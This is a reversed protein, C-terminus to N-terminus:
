IKLRGLIGSLACRLKQEGFDAPRLQQLSVRFNFLEPIMRYPCLEVRPFLAMIAEEYIRHGIELKWYLNNEVEFGLPSELAEFFIKHIEFFQGYPLCNPHNNNTEKLTKINLPNSNWGIPEAFYYLQGIKNLDKLNLTDYLIHFSLDYDEEKM